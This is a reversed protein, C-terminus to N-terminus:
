YPLNHPVKKPSTKRVFIKEADMYCVVVVISYIFYYGYNKYDNFINANQHQCKNKITNKQQDTIAHQVVMRAITVEDENMVYNYRIIGCLLDFTDFTDFTDITNEAFNANCNDPYYLHCVLLM